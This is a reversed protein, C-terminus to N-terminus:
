FQNVFGRDWIGVHCGWSYLGVEGDRLHRLAAAKLANPNKYHLDVADSITHLSKKSAGKTEANHIPCRYGSGGATGIDLPEGIDDRIEQALDMIRKSIVSETCCGTGQCHIEHAWFNKTLQVDVGRPIHYCGDDQLYKSADAFETGNDVAPVTESEVSDSVAPVFGSAIAERAARDTDNGWVGDDELGLQAQLKKTATASKPGWIGDIEKPKIFGFYALLCQKQTATM